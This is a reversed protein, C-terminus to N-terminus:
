NYTISVSINNGQYGAPLDIVLHSHVGQCDGIQMEAFPISFTAVAHTYSQGSAIDVINLTFGVQNTEGGENFVHLMLRSPAGASCRVVQYSVDIMQPSEELGTWMTLIEPYAVPSSQAEARNSFLGSTCWFLILVTRVWFNPALFATSNIVSQKM